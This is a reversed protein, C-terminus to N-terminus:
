NTKRKHQSMKKTISPLFRCMTSNKVVKKKRTSFIRSLLFAEKKCRFFKRWIAVSMELFIEMKWKIKAAHAVLYPKMQVDQNM